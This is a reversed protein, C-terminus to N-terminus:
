KALRLPNKQVVFGEDDLAFANTTTKVGIVDLEAKALEYRKTAKALKRNANRLETELKRILRRAKNVAKENARTKQQVRRVQHVAYRERM